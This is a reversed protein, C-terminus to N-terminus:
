PTRRLSIIIGSSSIPFCFSLPDLHIGRCLSETTHHLESAARRGILFRTGLTGAAHHPPNSFLFFPFITLILPFLAPEKSRFCFLLRLPLSPPCVIRPNPLYSLRSTPSSSVCLCLQALSLCLLSLTWHQHSNLIRENASSHTHSLGLSARGCLASLVVCVAFFSSPLVCV